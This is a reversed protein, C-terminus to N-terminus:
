PLVRVETLATDRYKTGAYVSLIRLKMWAVKVAKPLTFSQPTSGDDLEFIQPKGNPLTIEIMRVRNNAAFIKENKHYGNWLQLGRFTTNPAFDIILSEGIGDVSKATDPVWATDYKGDFLNKPLYNFGFQPPLVSSVCYRLDGADDCIEGSQKPRAAPKAAPTTRTPIPAPPAAQTDGEPCELFHCAPAAHAPIALLALGLVTIGTALRHRM